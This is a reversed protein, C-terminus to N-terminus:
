FVTMWADKEANHFARLPAVVPRYEWTEQIDDFFVTPYTAATTSFWRKTQWDLFWYEDSGAERPNCFLYHHEAHQIEPFRANNLVGFWASDIWGRPYVKIRGWFPDDVTELPPGAVAELASVVPARPTVWPLHRSSVTVQPRNRGFREELLLQLFAPIVWKQYSSLKGFEGSPTFLSLPAVTEPPFRYVLHTPFTALREDMQEGIAAYEHTWPKVMGWKLYGHFLVANGLACLLLAAPVWRQLRGRALTRRMGEFVLVSVIAMPPGMVRFAIARDAAGIMPLLSLLLASLTILLGAAFPIPRRYRLWLAALIPVACILASALGASTSVLQGWSAIIRIGYAPVLWVLQAPLDSLATAGRETQGQLDLTKALFRFLLFYVAATGVM